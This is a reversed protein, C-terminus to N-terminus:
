ETHGYLILAAKLIVQGPVDSYLEYHLVVLCNLMWEESETDVNYPHSTEDM